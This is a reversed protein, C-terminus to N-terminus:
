KLKTARVANRSRPCFGLIIVFSTGIARIPFSLLKLLETGLVKSLPWIYEKSYIVTDCLCLSFALSRQPCCRQNDPSLIVWCLSGSCLLSIAPALSPGHPACAAQAVHGESASGVKLLSRQIWGRREAAEAKERSDLTPTFCNLIILVESFSDYTSTEASRRGRDSIPIKQLHSINARMCVMGLGKTRLDSHVQQFITFRFTDAKGSQTM